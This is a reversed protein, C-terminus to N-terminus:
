NSCRVVASPERATLHKNIADIDLHDLDFTGGIWRIM